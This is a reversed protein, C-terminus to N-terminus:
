KMKEAMWEAGAKFADMLDRGNFNIYDLGEDNEIPAIYNEAAEELGDPLKPIQADRWRAGAIFGVRLDRYNHGDSVQKSYAVAAEDVDSPLSVSLAQIALELAEIRQEDLWCHGGNPYIQRLYKIAEERTM